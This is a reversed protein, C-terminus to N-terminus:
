AKTAFRVAPALEAPKLIRYRYTTRESAHGVYRGAQKYDGTSAVIHSVIARRSEHPRWKLAPGILDDSWRYINSRSHWPFIRGEDQPGLAALFAVATASLEFEEWRLNTKNKTIAMRAAAKPLDVWAWDFRMWESVRYGREHVLWVFARKRLQKELTWPTPATRIKKEIAELLTLVTEEDAIVPPAPPLSGEPAPVSRVVIESRWEEAVARHLLARYPTIVERNAAAYTPMKLSGKNIRAARRQEPTMALGAAVTRRREDLWAEATARVTVNNIDTVLKDGDRGVIFDLRKADPHFADIGRDARYHLNVTALTVGEARAAPPRRRSREALHKRVYAQAGKPDRADTSIELKIGADDRGRWVVYSNGKREGPEYFSGGFGPIRYPM